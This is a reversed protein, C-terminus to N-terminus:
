DVNVFEEDALVRIQLGNCIDIEGCALGFEDISDAICLYFIQAVGFLISDPALELFTNSDALKFRCHGLDDVICAFIGKRLEEDVCHELLVADGNIVELVKDIRKVGDSLYCIVKFNCDTSGIVCTSIKCKHNGYVIVVIRSICGAGKNNELVPLVYLELLIGYKVAAILSVGDGNRLSLFKLCAVIKAYEGLVALGKVASGCTRDM